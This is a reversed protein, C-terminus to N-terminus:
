VHWRRRQNRAQFMSPKQLLVIKKNYWKKNWLHTPSLDPHNDWWADELQGNKRCLTWKIRSCVSLKQKSASAFVHAATSTSIENQQIIDSQPKKQLLRTKVSEANFCNRDDGLVDFATIINEYQHLLARLIAMPMEQVDIDVNKSNLM